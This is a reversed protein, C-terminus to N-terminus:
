ACFTKYQQEIFSSPPTVTMEKFAGNETFVMRVNSTIQASCSITQSKLAYTQIKKDSVEYKYSYITITKQNNFTSVYPKLILEKYNDSIMSRYVDPDTKSATNFINDLKKTDLRIESFWKPDYKYEGKFHCQPENEVKISGRDSGSSSSYKIYGNEDFEFRGRLIYPVACNTTQVSIDYYPTTKVGKVYKYLRGYSYTKYTNGNDVDFDVKNPIFTITDIGEYEKFTSLINSDKKSAKLIKKTVKNTDLKILDFYKSDYNGTYAFAQSSGTILFILIVKKM